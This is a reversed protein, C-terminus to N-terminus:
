VRYAKGVTLNARPTGKDPIPLEMKIRLFKNGLLWVEGLIFYNTM